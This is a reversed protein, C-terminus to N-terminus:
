TYIYALLLLYESSISSIAEGTLVEHESIYDQSITVKSLKRVNRALSRPGIDERDVELEFYREHLIFTSGTQFRTSRYSFHFEQHKNQKIACISLM